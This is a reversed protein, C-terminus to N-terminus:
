WSQTNSNNKIKTMRVPRYYYKITTKIQIEGIALSTSCQKMNDIETFLEEIKFIDRAGEM